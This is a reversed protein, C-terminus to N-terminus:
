ILEVKLFINSLLVCVRIVGSALKVKAFQGFNEAKILGAKFIARELVSEITADEGLSRNVSSGSSILMRALKIM